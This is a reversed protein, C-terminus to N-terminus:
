HYLLYVYKTKCMFACVLVSNSQMSKGHHGVNKLMRLVCPSLTLTITSELNLQAFLGFKLLLKTTKPDTPKSKKM